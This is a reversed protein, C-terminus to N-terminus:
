SLRENIGSDKIVTAIGCFLRTVRDAKQAALCMTRGVAERYARDAPDMPVVGCGLEDCVIVIDPRIAILREMESVPDSGLAQQRRVIEQYGYILDAEALKEAALDALACETDELGAGARIWKYGKGEPYLASAYEEKGQHAGGIILEM